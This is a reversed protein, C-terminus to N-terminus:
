IHILSLFPFANGSGSYYLNCIENVTLERSWLGMEDVTASITYDGSNGEGLFDSLSLGSFSNDSPNTISYALNNNIYLNVGTPSANVASYYWEGTNPIINTNGGQGYSYLAIGDAGNLYLTTDGYGGGGLGWIAQPYNNGYINDFKFWCSISWTQGGSINLNNVFSGSGDAFYVGSNVIGSNYGYGSYGSLNYGHLTHDILNNDFNWYAVLGSALSGSGSPCCQGNISAQPSCQPTSYSIGSWNTVNTESSSSYAVSLIGGGAGQGYQIRIPYYEGSTLSIPNSSVDQNGHSGGNNVDANGTFYGTIAKNGLWLYSADDSWTSFSFDDTYPARFRGVFQWSYQQLADSGDFQTFDVNNLNQIVNDTDVYFNRIETTTYTKTKYQPYKNFFQPNGADPGDSFSASPDGGNYYMQGFLGDKMRISLELENIPSYYQGACDIAADGGCVNLGDNYLCGVLDEGCASQDSCTGNYGSCLARGFSDNSITSNCCSNGFYDTNTYDGCTNNCCGSTCGGNCNGCDDYFQCESTGFSNSDYNCASSNNCDVYWCYNCGDHYNRAGSNNCGWSCESTGFSNSDYNCATNDNCDTYWCYNCGDHYNRAYIDNCTWSCSGDDCTATNSYTCASSDTCGYSGGGESVCTSNGCDGCYSNCGGYCIGCGDASSSACTNTGDNYACIIHIFNSSQYNYLKHIETSSLERNWIAAEDIECSSGVNYTGDSNANFSINNVNVNAINGASAQQGVQTGDVYLTLNGYANWTFALHHWNGDSVNPGAAFRDYSGGPDSGYWVGAELQGGSITLEITGGGWNNGTVNEIVFPNSTTKVWISASYQSQQEGNPSLFAGSTTLYTQGDGVFSADNGAIGTAINVGNGNLILTHNNGTSDLWDSDNFSWAALINNLLTNSECGPSYWTGNNDQVADGNCIGFHDFASSGGCVGACDPAPNGCGCGKDVGTGSCSGDDCGASPDYNCYGQQTCGYYGSCSGDDCTASSNYNCYSSNTCGYSGGGESVCASNGCDGCYSSCGGSCVGCVDNMAGGCINDCGLSSGDCHNGNNDTAYNSDYGYENSPSFCGTYSYGDGYNADGGCVSFCDPPSGTPLGGDYCDGQHNGTYWVGNVYLYQAVVGNGCTFNNYDYDFGTFNDGTVTYCDSGLTYHVGQIGGSTIGNSLCASASSLEVGNYFASYINGQGYGWDYEYFIGTTSGSWYGGGGTRYLVGDWAGVLCTFETGNIYITGSESLTTGNGWDIDLGTFSDAVGNTYHQEYHGGSGFTGNYFFYQITGTPDYYYDTDTGTFDDSSGNTYHQGNYGGTFVGLAFMPYPDAGSGTFTGGYIDSGSDNTFNDGSFTGGFIFGYNNTFNDGSFTGGYIPDNNTFGDGSFTGGYIGWSNSKISPIDCTGTVVQNPDIIYNQITVGAGNTADILDYGSTSGDTDSWPVETPASGSGDAATNWNALNEWTYDGSANTYYLPVGLYSVSGDVIGGIPNQWNGGDYYVYANGEIHGLNRSSDRLTANGVIVGTSAIQSSDHMSVGNATNGALISSGQMNVVGTAQLTLGAGFDASWFSASSCFCQDSGQTNQTVENYLNIVDSTTPLATAPTSFGSDQWWNALNGWDGDSAANNYYLNAM